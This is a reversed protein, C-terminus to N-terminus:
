VKGTVSHCRYESVIARTAAVHLAIESMCPLYVFSEIPWVLLVLPLYTVPTSLPVRDILRIKGCEHLLCTYNSPQSVAM